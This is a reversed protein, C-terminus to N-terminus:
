RPLRLKRACVPWAEYGDHDDRVQRAITIQEERNAQHPLPAYEKGGYRRWTTADFQLGGYYGNGSNTSWNGGSECMALVDWVRAGYRTDQDGSPDPGVSAAATGALAGATLLQSAIVVLMARTRIRFSGRVAASSGM